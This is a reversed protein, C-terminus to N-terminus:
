GAWSVGLNCYSIPENFTMWNAIRDGFHSFLVNAYNVFDDVIKPGLFGDYSDELTQPTDQPYPICQTPHAAATYKYAIGAALPVDFQWHFM